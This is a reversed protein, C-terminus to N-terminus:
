KGVTGQSQPEAAQLHDYRKGTGLTNGLVTYLCDFAYSFFEHTSWIETIEPPPQGETPLANLLM